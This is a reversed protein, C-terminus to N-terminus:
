YILWALMKPKQTVIRFGVPGGFYQVYMGFRNFGKQELFHETM